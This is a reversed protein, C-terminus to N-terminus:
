DAASRAIMLDLLDDLELSEPDDVALDAAWAQRKVAGQSMWSPLDVDAITAVVEAMEESRRRGHILTRTILYKALGPWDSHPVINPLSAVVEDEVGYARGALMCESVISELGKVFISRCMKVASARGVETSYPRAAFGLTALPVEAAGAFPGGLLIPTAIRRPGIPAMVAAEVYRGGEAELAQSSRRRTGPSVSNLDVYFAGGVHPAADRSVSEAASATVASIVVDRGSVVEALSASCAVGSAHAAGRLGDASDEFRLDYVAVEAGARGLDAALIAGVEGYGILGIRPSIMSSM